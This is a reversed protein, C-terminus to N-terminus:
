VRSGHNVGKKKINLLQKYTSTRKGVAPFMKQRSFPTIRLMKQIDPNNVLYSDIYIESM